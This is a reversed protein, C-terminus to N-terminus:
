ASKRWTKIGHKKKRFVLFVVAVIVFAACVIVAYLYSVPYKAPIVETSLIQGCVSCKVTKEGSSFAGAEITIAEEEIHGTAPIEETYSDGCLSCTYTRIGSETCSPDKTISSDYSHEVMPIEETYSDGCVKCTYTTEGKETCTAEKTIEFSYDHKGTAPIETKYTDGCKSCKSEMMGFDACTPEKIISDTYLHDCTKVTKSPTKTTDDNATTDTTNGAGSTGLIASGNTGPYNNTKYGASEAQENHEQMYEELSTFNTCYVTKTSAFVISIAAICCLTKKLLRISKM